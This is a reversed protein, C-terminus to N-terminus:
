DTTLKVVSHSVGDELWGTVGFASLPEINEAIEPDEEGALRALWNDDADFDVFLVAAAEDADEVVEDFAESEGLSGGGALTARYDANPSLTVRDGEVETELMDADPGMQAAVKDLAGQIADPDGQITVGVPLEGPGGNFFAEMDFGSGMSVAMADGVLAEADTPLDLGSAESMEAMLEDSTMEAGGLEAFTDVMETFWGDSFGLAFAAVTDDPLDSVLESGGQDLGSMAMMSQGPDAATEVELAGDDFRVTIAAGRFDAFAKEMEPTVSDTTGPDIEGMGRMSDLSEGYIGFMDALYQGAAPAAYMSVIGPDGAEETWRQFDGDDALTGEEADAVVQDTIEVTEGIVAWDGEVTWAATTSDVEDGGCTEQLTALGDEAAGADSVQLVLVPAPTEAGTDIAAVAARDGMWPEVDAAYDLGECEGSETLETFLRERLDDDTDLDVNDAFAPFKRLTRIAEIKQEGSPDLDLSAYAITSAPLARAPQDGTSLFSSAAWAAGGGVALLGLIGGLVIVRKRSDSSGAPGAVPSGASSELYEPGSPGQPTTSM